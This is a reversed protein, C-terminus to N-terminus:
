AIEHIDSAAHGAAHRGIRARYELLTDPERRHLEVFAAGEHLRDHVYEAAIRARRLKGHRVGKRHGRRCAHGLGAHDLQAVAKSDVGIARGQLLQQIPCM